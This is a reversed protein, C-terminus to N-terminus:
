DKFDASYEVFLFEVRMPKSEGKEVDVRVAEKVQQLSEVCTLVVPLVVM